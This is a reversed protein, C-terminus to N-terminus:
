KPVNKVKGSLGNLILLLKDARKELYEKIHKQSERDTNYKCYVSEAYAFNWSMTTTASDNISHQGGVYQDEQVDNIAIKTEESIGAELDVIKLLERFQLLGHTYTRNSADETGILYMINCYSHSSRPNTEGCVFESRWAVPTNSDDLEFVNNNKRVDYSYGDIVLKGSPTVDIRMFGVIPRQNKFMFTYIFYKPWPYRSQWVLIKEIFLSLLGTALAWVLATLLADLTIVLVYNLLTEAVHNNDIWKFISQIVPLGIASTIFTFFFTVQTIRYKDLGSYTGDIISKM